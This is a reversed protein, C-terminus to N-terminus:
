LSKRFEEAQRKEEETLYDLFYEDYTFYYEEVFEEEEMITFEEYNLVNSILFPPHTNDSIVISETEMEDIDDDIEQEEENILDQKDLEEDTLNFQKQISQQYELLERMSEESKGKSINHDVMVQVADTYVSFFM